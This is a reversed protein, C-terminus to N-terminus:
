EVSRMYGLVQIASNQQPQIKVDIKTSSQVRLKIYYTGSDYFMIVTAMSLNITGVTNVTLPLVNRVGGTADVWTEIYGQLGSNITLLFKASILFLGPKHISISYFEIESNNKISTLTTATISDVGPSKFLYTSFCVPTSILSATSSESQLITGNVERSRVTRAKSKMNVTVSTASVNRFTEDGQAIVELFGVDRASVSVSVNSVYSKQPNSTLINSIRVNNSINASNPANVGKSM